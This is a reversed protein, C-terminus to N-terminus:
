GKFIALVNSAVSPPAMQDDSLILKKNVATTLDLHSVDYVTYGHNHLFNFLDDREEKTLSPFVEAIINPKFDAIVQNLTKLVNLDNGETDVKILSIKPLWEPFFKKLHAELNVGKVKQKLKFKGHINDDESDVLGGNSFSAESSAFFFEGDTETAAVQLTVINAKDKNLSANAELIAFVQTNPDVGLVMGNKGSAIAMPVTLDGTNAGIDIVLSGEKIIQKFFDIEIQTIVKPAVLPNLWNAFEIVGDTSLDFRDIRYGFDQFVRRAKKRALSAKIYSLISM